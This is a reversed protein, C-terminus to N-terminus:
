SIRCPFLSVHEDDLHYQGGQSTDKRFSFFFPLKFVNSSNLCSSLNISMCSLYDYILPTLFVVSIGEEGLQKRSNKKVRVEEAEDLVLNM